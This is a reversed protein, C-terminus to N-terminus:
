AKDPEWDNVFQEPNVIQYADTKLQRLFHRNDSILYDVQLWEAFAGIFADAKAPLGLEGYKFVLEPPVPDEVIFAYSRFAFLRYFTKIHESHFLNRSVEQKVLRPIVLLLSPNVLQLLRGADSTENQISRIFVCSDICILMNPKM